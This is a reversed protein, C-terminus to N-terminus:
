VTNAIKSLVRRGYPEAVVAAVGRSVPWNRGGVALPPEPTRRPGRVEDIKDNNAKDRARTKSATDEIFDEVAVVGHEIPTTSRLKKTTLLNLETPAM